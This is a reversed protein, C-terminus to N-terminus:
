KVIEVKINTTVEASIRVSIDYVGTNKIPAPVIIKKKEIDYGMTKLQEAIEKNTISGFIKGNEGSKVKVVVSQGKLKDGLEKDAKRQEEKHFAAAEKKQVNENVAQKSAPVALGKKLLFNTAFGDSAEVIDDKKGTGKVDKLLIVKM